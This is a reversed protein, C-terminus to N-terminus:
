DVEPNDGVDDDGVQDDGVEGLIEQFKRMFGPMGESGGRFLAFGM